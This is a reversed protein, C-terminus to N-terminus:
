TLFIDVGELFSDMGINVFQEGVGKEYAGHVGGEWGM